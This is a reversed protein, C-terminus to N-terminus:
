LLGPEHRSCDDIVVLLHDAGVVSGDPHWDSLAPVSPDRGGTQWINATSELLFAGYRDYKYSAVIGDYIGTGAAMQFFERVYGADALGCIEEMTDVVRMNAMDVAIILYVSTGLSPELKEM